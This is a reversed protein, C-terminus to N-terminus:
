SREVGRLEVEFTTGGGERPLCRAGGRHHHAIDRVLALGLGVGGDAGERHGPPRYFPEFIREREAEPVGPGRDAVVLRAGGGSLAEVRAEVGAGGGHRRANELLNGILRRLMRAHGDVIVREAMVEAGTRAGEDALLAGVDVPEPPERNERAQLRSAMLLDGVLADLDAIDREADELMVRRREGPEGGGPEEGLLEVAMRLRALPSRFEHSASALMRRQAEVARQIHEAARNFSRALDAVEDRGEIPVRRSLDGAGLGEVGERLAEIRRTIRRALPYSGFALAVAVLALLGLHQHFRRVPDGWTPGGALRRGDPLAVELAPGRDTRMWRAEGPGAQGPPLEGGASAVLRGGADRVALRLSLRTSLRLVAAQVAADSAEPGPISEGLMLAAERLAPPVEGSGWLGSYARAAMGAVFLGVATLGLFGLYIQTHLRRRVSPRARWARPPRPARRM